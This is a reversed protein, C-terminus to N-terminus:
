LKEIFDNRYCVPPCLMRQLVKMLCAMHVILEQNELNDHSSGRKAFMLPPANPSCNPCNPSILPPIITGSQPCLDPNVPHIPLIVSSSNEVGQPEM